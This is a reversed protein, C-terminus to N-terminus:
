GSSNMVEWTCQSGGNDTNLIMNITSTHENAINFNKSIQNDSNDDDDSLSIEVTNVDQVEYSIAPLEITESQLSLLLGTWTYNQSAGGNVSYTIEVETLDNEGFNQINVEPTIDFGCQPLITEISTSRANNEDAFNFYIPFTGNGSPIDKQTETIFAVVELDEIKVPVNNYSDPIDYTYTEDIFTGETTTNIIEGWQGTILWVLRHM